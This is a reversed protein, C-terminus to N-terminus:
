ATAESTDDTEKTSDDTDNWLEAALSSFYACVKKDIGGGCARRAELIDLFYTKVVKLRFNM